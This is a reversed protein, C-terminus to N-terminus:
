PSPCLCSVTSRSISEVGLQEVLREIKRTSVGNVYAEAVM